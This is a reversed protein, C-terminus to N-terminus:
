LQTDALHQEIPAQQHRVVAHVAQDDLRDPQGLWEVEPPCPVASRRIGICRMGFARARVAAERRAYPSLQPFPSSSSSSSSSGGSNEANPIKGLNSPVSSFSRHHTGSGFRDLTLRVLARRRCLLPTPLRM